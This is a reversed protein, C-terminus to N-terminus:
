SYCAWHLPTSGRKDQANLDLGLNKFLYLPPATDGQAAVHLMNLGNNNLIKYDAQNEILSHIADLNGQFSAYHLATWGEDSSKLNIWEVM